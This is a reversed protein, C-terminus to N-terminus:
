DLMQGVVERRLRSDTSRKVEVVTPIADHDVFLHDVSFNDPGGVRTPLGMERQVLLWRRPDDPTMQAGALLAPHRAVIHQLDDESDFLAARMEIPAEEGLLYISDATM